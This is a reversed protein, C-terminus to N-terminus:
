KSLSIFVEEALEGVYDINESSISLSIFMSELQSPPLYVGRNLMAHFFRAFTQKHLHKTDEWTRVPKASFFLTLMSGTRNIEIPIKANNNAKILRTELTAGLQELLAYTSPSKLENLCAIGAAVALPNGSLTGAQYTNGLPSILEMIERRGGFAGIPLGGGIIKGLCTLDPQIGYLAQAGGYSVRFGTIVEDFILLAGHAISLERIGALFGAEPKIVGMNGAIPEVIIAAIQRPYLKLCQEVTDLQNYECVLTEAATADPVGGSAPIGNAYAGSGAEVLVSDSHGHYCGRFKIIKTRKTFERAVRIASMVAETGSNVLRLMEVSPMAETILEALEVEGSIPAGFSTGLGAANQVAEVIKPHAHGLILPGWSNVLDLYYNGDIDYLYQDKGKAIVPPTGGVSSFSRVPSNVGGPM